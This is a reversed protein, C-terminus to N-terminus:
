QVSLVTPKPPPDVVLDNGWSNGIVLGGSAYNYSGAEWDINYPSASASISATASGTSATERYVASVTVSRSGRSPAPILVAYLGSASTTANTTVTRMGSRYSATVADNGLPKGATDTVRGFAGSGGNSYQM